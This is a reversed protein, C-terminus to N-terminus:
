HYNPKFEINMRLLPHDSSLFGDKLYNKSSFVVQQIIGNM